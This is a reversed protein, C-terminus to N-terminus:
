CSLGKLVRLTQALLGPNIDNSVKLVAGCITIEMAPAPDPYAKPSEYILPTEPLSQTHALQNREIRVVEHEELQAPKTASEPIFSAAKRHREIWTYFTSHKINNELCWQSDTLGSNRCEMILRLQEDFPVRKSRM